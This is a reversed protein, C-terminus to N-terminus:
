IGNKSRRYEQPTMHVHQRFYKNFFSLNTFGLAFAVEKVSKNTYQLLGKAHIMLAYSIVEGPTLRIAKKISTCFHPLSVGLKEAYFSVNHHTTHHEVVMVVFDNYIKTNRSNDHLHNVQKKYLESAGQIFITLISRMIYKNNLSDLLPFSQNLLDYISQCLNMQEDNLAHLPHELLYPLFPATDKVLDLHSLYESSFGVYSITIDESIDSLKLYSGPILMVLDQAHLRYQSTNISVNLSGKTCLVFLGAAVRIPTNSYAKLQEATRIEGVCCDKTLDLTVIDKNM